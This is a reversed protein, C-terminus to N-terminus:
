PSDKKPGEAEKVLKEIAEDLAKDGPSGVFKHRIIGKADIIFLTPWGQINWLSAIPGQTSGGDWFSRWTIQEKEM